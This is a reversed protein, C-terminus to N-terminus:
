TAAGLFDNELTMENKLWFSCMGSFEATHSLFQETINEKAKNITSELSNIEAQLNVNSSEVHAQKFMLLKEKDKKYEQIKNKFNHLVSGRKRPLPDRITEDNKRIRNLDLVKITKKGTDDSNVIHVMPTLPNPTYSYVLHPEPNKYRPNIIYPIENELVGDDNLDNISAMDKATVRTKKDEIPFRNGKQNNCTSCSVVYNRHDYVLWWYAEKTIFANDEDRTEAKPRFHEIHSDGEVISQECYACKRGQQKWIEFKYYSWLRRIFNGEKHNPVIAAIEQLSDTVERDYKAKNPPIDDPKINISLKIM